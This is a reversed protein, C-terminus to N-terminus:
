SRIKNSIGGIHLRPASKSIPIQIDFGECNKFPKIDNKDILKGAFFELPGSHSVIILHIDPGIPSLRKTLSNIKTYFKKLKKESQLINESPDQLWTSIPEKKKFILKYYDRVIDDSVQFSSFIKSNNRHHIYKRKKIIEPSTLKEKIINITQKARNLPSSYFSIISGEPIERILKNAYNTSQEIGEEVLEGQNDNENKYKPKGHRLFHIVVERSRKEKEINIEKEM